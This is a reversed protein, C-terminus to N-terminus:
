SGPDQKFRLLCDEQDPKICLNQFTKTPELELKVNQPRAISKQDRKNKPSGQLVQEDWVLEMETTLLTSKKAIWTNNPLLSPLHQIQLICLM